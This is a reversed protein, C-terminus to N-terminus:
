GFRPGDRTGRGESESEGAVLIVRVNFMLLSHASVVNPTGHDRQMGRM